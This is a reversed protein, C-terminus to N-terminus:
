NLNISNDYLQSVGRMMSMQVKSFLSFVSSAEMAMKLPVQISSKVCGM